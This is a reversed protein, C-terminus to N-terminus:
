DKWTRHVLNLSMCSQLKPEVQEAVHLTGSACRLGSKPGPHLTKSHKPNNTLTKLPTKERKEGCGQLQRHFGHSPGSVCNGVPRRPSRM